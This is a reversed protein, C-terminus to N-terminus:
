WYYPIQHCFTNLWWIINCFSDLCGSSYSIPRFHCCETTRSDYTWLYTNLVYYYWVISSLLRFNSDHSEINIEIGLNLVRILSETQPYGLIGLHRSKSIIYWLLYSIIINWDVVLHFKSAYVFISGNKQDKMRRWLKLDEKNLIKYGLIIIM